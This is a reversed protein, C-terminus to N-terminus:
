KPSGRVASNLVDDKEILKVERGQLPPPPSLLHDKLDIIPVLKICSGTEVQFEKEPGKM